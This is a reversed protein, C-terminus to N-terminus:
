GKIIYRILELQKDSLKNFKSAFLRLFKYQWFSKATITIDTDIIISDIEEQEQESLKVLQMSWIREIFDLPIPNHGREIASLYSQSMQLADSMDVMKIDRKIRIRRLVKGLKTIERM